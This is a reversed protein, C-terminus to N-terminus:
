GGTANLQAGIVVPVHTLTFKTCGDSQSAAPFELWWGWRQVVGRHAHWAVAEGHSLSM